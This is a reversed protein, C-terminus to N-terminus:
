ILNILNWILVKKAFKVYLINPNLSKKNKRTKKSRKNRKTSKKKSNKKSSFSNNIFSYKSSNVLLEGIDEKYKQFLEESVENKINSM